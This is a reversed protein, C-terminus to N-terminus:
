MVDRPHLRVLACDAQANLSACLALLRKGTSCGFVREDEVCLHCIGPCGALRGMDSQAFEVVEQQLEAIRQLLEGASANM